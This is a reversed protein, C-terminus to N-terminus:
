EELGRAEVDLELEIASFLLRPWPSADGGAAAPRRFQHTPTDVPPDPQEDDPDATGNRQRVLAVQGRTELSRNFLPARNQRGGLLLDGEEPEEPPRELRAARNQARSEPSSTPTALTSM